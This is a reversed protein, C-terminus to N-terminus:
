EAYHGGNIYFEEMYKDARTKLNNYMLEIRFNFEDESLTHEAILRYM